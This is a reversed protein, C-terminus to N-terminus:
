HQAVEASSVGNSMEASFVYQIRKNPSGNLFYLIRQLQWSIM